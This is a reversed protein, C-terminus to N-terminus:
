ELNIKFIGHGTNDGPDACIGVIPETIVDTVDTGGGALPGVAGSGASVCVGGVTVTGDVLAGVLGKTQIWGFAQESVDMASCSVGAVVPDTASAAEVDNFPSAIISVDSATTLAVQLPQFLEIRISGTAPTDTATNNKIDYTYGEGADDTTILKGGAYQGATVAAVTLQLFRSGITGDTTTVCSASAVVSNDTDVLSTESLDTSVLLGAATDAGFQAYRYVSGDCLEVKHGLAFKPAAHKDFKNFDALTPAPTARNSFYSSSSIAM